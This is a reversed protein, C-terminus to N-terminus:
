NVHELDGFKHGLARAQSGHQEFARGRDFEIPIHALFAAKIGGVGRATAHAHEQRAASGHTPTIHQHGLIAREDAHNSRWLRHQANRMAVLVARRKVQDAGGVVQAVAMHGYLQLGVVEFNLGVMHQGVHQAGHVEDDIFDGFGKLRFATRVRATAVRVGAMVVRMRM